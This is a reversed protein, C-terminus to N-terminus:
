ESWSEREFETRRSCIICDAARKLSDFSLTLSTSKCAALLLPASTVQGYPLRKKRRRAVSITHKSITNQSSNNKVDNRKASDDNAKALKREIKADQDSPAEQSKCSKM